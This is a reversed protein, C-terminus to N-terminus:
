GLETIAEIKLLKELGENMSGNNELVYDALAEYKSYEERYLRIEERHIDIMRSNHEFITKRDKKMDKLILRPKRQVLIVIGSEKMIKACEPILAVEAGTSIVAPRKLRSLEDMIRIQSIQYQGANALDFLDLRSSSSQHREITLTDTDYFPLGLIDAAYRGLTSKGSGPIGTFIINKM